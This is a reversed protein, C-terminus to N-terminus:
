KYSKNNKLLPTHELLEITRLLVLLYVIIEFPTKIVRLPLQPIYPVSGHTLLVIWYPTLVLSVSFQLIIVSFIIRHAKDNEKRKLYVFVLLIIVGILGVVLIMYIFWPKLTIDTGLGEKILDLILQINFLGWMAMTLLSFLLITNVILFFNKNRPKAWYILGPVVGYLIANLTFGPFFIGWNGNFILFGLLDQIIAAYLGIKPGLLISIIVLPLYGIGIKILNSSGPPYSFSLVNYLVIGIATMLGAFILNRLKENHM